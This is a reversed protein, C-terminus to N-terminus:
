VRELVLPLTRELVELAAKLYAPHGDRDIFAPATAAILVRRIDLYAGDDGDSVLGQEKRAKRLAQVPKAEQLVEPRAWFLREMYIADESWHGAHTEAFDLLVPGEDGWPSEDDRRMLNGPHLDGHCWTDCPRASWAEVIRGLHRSVERLNNRWSQDEVIAHERAKTQAKELLSSWDWEKRRQIDPWAEAAHKYFSAAATALQQFVESHIHAALPDGPLREMVIWCFDWGGIEEGCFAVRPTPATTECLGRTFRLEGPGVPVKVVADREQGNVDVKAYATAAGSRQWDTRFWVIDRLKGECADLLAPELQPGLAHASTALADPLEAM